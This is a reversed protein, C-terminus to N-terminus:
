RGNGKSRQKFERKARFSSPDFQYVAHLQQRQDMEDQTDGPKIGTKVDITLLDVFPGPVWTSRHRVTIDYQVEGLPTENNFAANGWVYRRLGREISEFEVNDPLSTVFVNNLTPDTWLRNMIRWYAADLQQEIAVQDNNAVMASFGVRLAHSFRINGANADGDPTMTEDIIYVGLYPLYEPRAVLMKSKRCTYGAFFPDGALADFLADRIVHSYSQTDTIGM